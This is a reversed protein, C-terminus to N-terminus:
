SLSPPPFVKGAEVVFGYMYITVSIYRCVCQRVMEFIVSNLIFVGISLEDFRVFNEVRISVQEGDLVKYFYSSSCNSFQM